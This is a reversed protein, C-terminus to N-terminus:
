DGFNFEVFLPLHDSLTQRRPRGSKTLFSEVGDGSLIEVRVFRDMLDPRILVQDYLHWFHNTPENPNHFYHTGPPGSSQDGFCAWMPNYFCSHDKRAKLASVTRLLDRTMISHLAQTGVVGAEYPNMNLDGILITRRHGVREEVRRISDAINTAQLARGSETGVTMRDVLHVGALLVPDAGPFQVERLTLKGDLDNFRDHVSEEKLRTWIKVRRSRSPPCVYRGAGGANLASAIREDGIRCEAFLLLDISHRQVLRTLSECISDARGDRNSEQRGYLNWFLIGAM